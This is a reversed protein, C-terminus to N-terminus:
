SRSHLLITHYSFLILCPLFVNLLDLSCIKSLIFYSYGIHDDHWTHTWFVDLVCSHALIYAICVLVWKWGRVSVVFSSSPVLGLPRCPIFSVVSPYPNEQTYFTRLPWYDAHYADVFFSAYVFLNYNILVHYGCTFGSNYLKLRTMIAHCIACLVHCLNIKNAYCLTFCTILLDLL